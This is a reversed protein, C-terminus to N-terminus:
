KVAVLWIRCINYLYSPKLGHYDPKTVFANLLFHELEPNCEFASIKTICKYICKM